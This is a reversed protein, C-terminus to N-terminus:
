CWVALVLSDCAGRYAILIGFHLQSSASGGMATVFLVPACAPVITKVWVSHLGNIGSCPFASIPDVLAGTATYSVFSCSDPLTPLLPALCPDNAYTYMTFSFGILIALLKKGIM